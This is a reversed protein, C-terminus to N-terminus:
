SDSGRDPFDERVAEDERAQPGRETGADTM